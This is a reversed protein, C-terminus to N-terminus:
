TSGATSRPWRSWRRPSTPRRPTTSRSCATASAVEELRHAVGPFTRLAPACRTPTSARAGARGGGGGDRQPPQPARAPAIEDVALLPEDDWWLQGGRDRARGRPRRRLVAGPAAAWTGSRRPRVPLGRRRRQGPARVGPAQRRPLGRAHRPPRPPGRHPQAARRGRARVGRHGRAPVVVGRLRRDRRPRALRSLSAVATGVNGAVAVPLGAERHIHASCSSPRRRATPGPSRSSSTRPDTALGLELEGIVPVGRERAAAVVPAEAPVGPSKM